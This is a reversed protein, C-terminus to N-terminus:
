FVCLLVMENVIVTVTVVSVHGADLADSKRDAMTVVYWRVSFCGTSRFFIPHVRPVGHPGHEGLGSPRWTCPGKM